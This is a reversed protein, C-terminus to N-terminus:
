FFETERALLQKAKQKAIANPLQQGPLIDEPAELVKNLTNRFQEQEFQRTLYYKAYYAYPLLFKEDAYKFCVDFHHAAKKLDGGLIPPRVAYLTAFFLHASGFYYSEDLEIVRNMLLQVRPLDVLAGPNDMNLNIYSGWSNATWFLAPLENKSFKTVVSQFKEIPGTLADQIRSHKSLIKLGYNKGRLYLRQARVPDTDEVFGMAYASFGQCAMLLLHENEPDSKILGELLKLDSTIAQEALVLDTEEYLATLNDQLIGSMSRVALRQVSCQFLLFSMLSIFLLNKKNM